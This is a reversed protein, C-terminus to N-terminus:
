RDLTMNAWRSITETMDSQLGVVIYRELNHLAVELSKTNPDLFQVYTNDVAKRHLLYNAVLQPSRSLTRRTVWRCSQLYGMFMEQYQRSDGTKTARNAATTIEDQWTERNFGHPFECRTVQGPRAAGFKIGYQASSMLRAVPERFTSFVLPRKPLIWGFLSPDLGVHTQQSPHSSWTIKRNPPLPPQKRTRIRHPGFIMTKTRHDYESCYLRDGDEKPFCRPNTMNLSYDKSGLEVGYPPVEGATEAAYWKDSLKACGGVHTVCANPGLETNQFLDQEETLPSIFVNFISSSATKPLRLWNISCDFKEPLSDQQLGFLSTAYPISLTNTAVLNRLLILYFIFALSVGACVQSKASSLAFKPLLSGSKRYVNSSVKAKWSKPEPPSKILLDPDDAVPGHFRRM